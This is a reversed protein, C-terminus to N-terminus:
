KSDPNEKILTDLILVNKIYHILSEGPDSDLEQCFWHFEMENRECDTDYSEYMWQCIQRYESATGSKVLHLLYEAKEKITLERFYAPWNDKVVGNVWYVEEGYYECPVDASNSHFVVEGPGNLTFCWRVNELLKM